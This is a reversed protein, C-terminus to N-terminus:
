KNQEAEKRMRAEDYKNLRAVTVFVECADLIKVSQVVLKERKTKKITIKIEEDKEQPTTAEQTENNDQSGENLNSAEVDITQPQSKNSPYSPSIDHGLLNNIVNEEIEKQDLGQSLYQAISSLKDEPINEQKAITYEMFASGIAQDLWSRLEEKRSNDIVIMKRLCENVNDHALNFIKNDM